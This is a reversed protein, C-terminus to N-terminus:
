SAEPSAEGGAGETSPGRGEGEEVMVFYPQDLLLNRAYQVFDTTAQINVARGALTCLARRLPAFVPSAHPYQESLPVTHVGPIYFETYLKPMGGGVLTLDLDSTGPGDADFPEGDVWRLATVASGRLVVKVEPPIVERIADVFQDYRGRDGAFALRVIRDRVAEDPLDDPHAPAGDPEIDSPRDTM